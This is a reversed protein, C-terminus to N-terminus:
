ELERLVQNGHQRRQRQISLREKKAKKSEPKKPAKNKRRRKPTM